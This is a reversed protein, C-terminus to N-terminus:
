RGPGLQFYGIFMTVAATILVIALGVSRRAVLVGLFTLTVVASMMVIDLTSVATNM